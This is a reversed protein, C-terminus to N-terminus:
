AGAGLGHGLLAVAYLFAAYSLLTMSERIWRPLPM